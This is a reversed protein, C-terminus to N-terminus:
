VQVQVKLILFVFCGGGWFFFVWVKNVNFLPPLVAALNNNLGVIYQLTMVGFGFGFPWKELCFIM